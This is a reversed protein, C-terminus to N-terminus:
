PAPPLLPPEIAAPEPQAAPLEVVNDALRMRQLAALAYHAFWLGSFAFVLTYLWVSAVILLPALVLTMASVAWLLTPAAGLYGTIIGIALLPWRRERLLRVREDRSAHDGLVDFTMVRYTLWGWILPPVILVLPPVFWLPISAVLVVLAVVTCGLSWFVSSWWGGGHRKQLQPFRRVAVLRTLAPTMLMAVLLLSFVVVVPLALAVVILLPLVNRFGSAGIAQLWQLFASTLSWGQLWASVADIAPEWFLYGLLWTTGGAIVLPLLSLLIVRPHLCYAVARWFADLLEKM